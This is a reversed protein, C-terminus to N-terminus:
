SEEVPKFRDPFRDAGCVHKENEGECIIYDDECIFCLGRRNHVYPCVITGDPRTIKVIKETNLGDNTVVHSLLRFGDEMGKGIEYKEATVELPVRTYKQM